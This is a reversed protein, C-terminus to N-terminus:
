AKHYALRAWVLLEICPFHTELAHLLGRSYVESTNTPVCKIPVFRSARCRSLQIRASHAVRHQTKTPPGFSLPWNAAIRYPLQMGTGSPRKGWDDGSRSSIRYRSCLTSSHTKGFWSQTAYTGDEEAVSLCRRNRRLAPKSESPRYSVQLLANRCPPLPFLSYPKSVATLLFVTFVFM